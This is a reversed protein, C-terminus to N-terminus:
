GGGRRTHRRARRSCLRDSHGPALDDIEPGTTYCEGGVLLVSFSPRDSTADSDQGTGEPTVLGGDTAKAFSPKVLPLDIPLAAPVVLTDDTPKDAVPMAGDPVADTAGRPLPEAVPGPFCDVRFLPLLGAPDGAAPEVPVAADATPKLPLDVVEAGLEDRLVSILFLDDFPDAGPAASGADVAGTNLASGSTPVLALAGLSPPAIM